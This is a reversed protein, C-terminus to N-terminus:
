KPVASQEILREKIDISPRFYPVKGSSLHVVAGTRPNRGIKEKKERVRFSGFGRIEVKDGNVLATQILDFVGNVIFEVQQKTMVNNSSAIQAILESKTMIIIGLVKNHWVASFFIEGSITEYKNRVATYFVVYKVAVCSSM